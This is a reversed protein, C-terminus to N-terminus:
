NNARKSATGEFKSSSQSRESESSSSVLEGGEFEIKEDEKQFSTENQDENENWFEKANLEVWEVVAAEGTKRSFPEEKEFHQRFSDETVAGHAEDVYDANFQPNENNKLSKQPKGHTKTGKGEKSIEEHFIQHTNRQKKQGKPTTSGLCTNTMSIGRRMARSALKEELEEQTKEQNIEVVFAQKRKSKPTLGGFNPENEEFKELFFSSKRGNRPTTAVSQICSHCPSLAKPNLLKMQKQKVEEQKANFELKLLLARNKAIKLKRGRHKTAEFIYNKKDNKPQDRNEKEEKLGFSGRGFDLKREVREDFQNGEFQGSDNEKNSEGLNEKELQSYLFNLAKAKSKKGENKRSGTKEMELCKQLATKEKKRIQKLSLPLLVLLHTKFEGKM